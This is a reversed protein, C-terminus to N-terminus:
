RDIETKIRKLIKELSESPQRRHDELTQLLEFLEFGCMKAAAKLMEVSKLPNPATKAKKILDEARNDIWKRKNDKSFWILTRDEEICCWQDPKLEVPFLVAEIEEDLGIFRVEGEESLRHNSGHSEIVLFEPIYPFEQSKPGYGVVKPEM